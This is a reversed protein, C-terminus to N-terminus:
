HHMAAEYASAVRIVSADSGPGSWVMMSIPMPNTLKSEVDGTVEDDPYLPDM